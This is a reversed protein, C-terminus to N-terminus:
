MLAPWSHIPNELGDASLCTGHSVRGSNRWTLAHERTEISEPELMNGCVDTLFVNLLLSPNALMKLASGWLMVSGAKRCRFEFSSDMANLIRLQGSLRVSFVSRVKM